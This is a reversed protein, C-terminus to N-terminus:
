TEIVFLNPHNEGIRIIKGRVDVLFVIENDKIVYDVIRGFENLRITCDCKFHLNKGILQQAIYKKFEIQKEM